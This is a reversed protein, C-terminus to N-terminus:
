QSREDKYPRPAVFLGAQAQQRMADLAPDAPTTMAQNGVTGPAFSGSPPSTLWGPPQLPQSTPRTLSGNPSMGNRNGAAIGAGVVVPMNAMAPMNDAQPMFVGPRSVQGYPPYSAANLNDTGSNNLPSAMAGNNMFIGWPNSWPVQEDSNPIGPPIAMAQASAAKRRRSVLLAVLAGALLLGLLVAVAAGILLTNSSSTDPTGTNSGDNNGTTTGNTAPTQSSAVTPSASVTPTAGTTPTASAQAMTTATSTVSQTAAPSPTPSPNPTPSPPVIPAHFTFNTSSSLTIQQGDSASANITYSGSAISSNPVTFTLVAIGSTNSIASNLNHVVTNGSMWLFNVQTGAPYYNSATVTAQNNASLISPAISVSPPNSSLVTFSGAVAILNGMGLVACVQFTNLATGSPWRFWGSFNGSSLSGSQSDAVNSCSSYIQYGFTVPTGDPMGWGSGTVTITTGTPGSFPSSAASGSVAMSSPGAAYARPTSNFAIFSLAAFCLTVVGVIRLAVRLVAWQLRHAQNQM